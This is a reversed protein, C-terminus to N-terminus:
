PLPSGGGLWQGHMEWHGGAGHPGVWGKGLLRILKSGYGRMVREYGAWLEAPFTKEPRIDDARRGCPYRMWSENGDEFGALVWRDRKRYPILSSRESLAVLKHSCVEDHLYGEGIWDPHEYVLFAKIANELALACLLFTARNTNDWEVAPGTRSRLILKGSRTRSRYLSVAQEHLSDATLVWGHPNAADAFARCEAETFHPREAM